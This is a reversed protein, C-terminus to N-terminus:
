WTCTMTLRSILGQLQLSPEEFPGQARTSMGALSHVLTTGDDNQSISLEVRWWEPKQVQDTDSLRLGVASLQDVPITPVPRPVPLADPLSDPDPVGAQPSSVPPALSDALAEMAAISDLSSAVQFGELRLRSAACRLADVPERNSPFRFAM